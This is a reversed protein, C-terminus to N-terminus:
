NDRICSFPEKAWEATGIGVSFYPNNPISSGLLKTFAEKVNVRGEDSYYRSSNTWLMTGTALEGFDEPLSIGAENLQTFEEIIPLRWGAKGGITTLRCYDYADEYTKTYNSSFPTWTYKGQVILPARTVPATCVGDIITAPELCVREVKPEPTQCENYVTIMPSKCVPETYDIKEGWTLIITKSKQTTDEQLELGALYKYRGSGDRKHHGLEEFHGPVMIRPKIKSLSSKMGILNPQGNDTIWGDLLLVHINTEDPLSEFNQTDGTHLIKYGEATEVAYAMNPANHTTEYATIHLDKIVVSQKHSMIMTPTTKKLSYNPYLIQGGNNKVYNLIKETNDYHDGHEHSIFLVDIKSLISVPIETTWGGKGHILDFAFVRTPTKVIFGHNYMNWIRLGQTVPQEIEAAVKKVRAEYFEIIEKPTEKTEDTDWLITDLETIVGVRATNAASVSPPKEDLRKAIDDMSKKLATQAVSSSSSSQVTASSAMSSLTVTTTPTNTSSSGGGGGGCAQLLVMFALPVFLRFKKTPNVCSTFLIKEM